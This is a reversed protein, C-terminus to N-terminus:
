IMYCGNFSQCEFCLYLGFYCLLFSFITNTQFLKYVLLSDGVILKVIYIKVHEDYISTKELM